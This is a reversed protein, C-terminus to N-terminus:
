WYAESLHITSFYLLSPSLQIQGSQYNSVGYDLFVRAVEDVAVDLMEALNM